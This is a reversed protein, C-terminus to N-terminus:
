HAGPVTTITSLDAEHPPPVRDSVVPHEVRDTGYAMKYFV